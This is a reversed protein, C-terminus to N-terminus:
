GKRKSVGILLSTIAIIFSASAFLLYTNLMTNDGTKPSNDYEGNSNNNGNSKLTEQINELENIPDNKNTNDDPIRVVITDDKSSSSTANFEVINSNTNISGIASNTKIDCTFQSTARLQKLKFTNDVSATVKLVTKVPIGTIVAKQGPKLTIIGNKITVETFTDDTNYIACKGNYLTEVSTGGFVKSYKLEYKFEKNAFNTNIKKYEDDVSCSIMFTGIKPSNIYKATLVPVTNVNSNTLLFNTKSTTRGDSVVLSNNTKIDKEFDKLVNSTNYLETLKRNVNSLAKEQVLMIDDKDFENRFTVSETNKLKIECAKTLTKDVVDYVFEDNNAVKITESKFTDAVNQADITNEVNLKTPEPLNFNLKLNAVDMGREMYFFTLTHQKGTDSLINKLDTSFPNDLNRYRGTVAGLNPIINNGSNFSTLTRASFAVNSNKALSVTSKNEAFNISGTIEGHSGGIDLALEGDIFVWVDDDGSFEFIIDQGNIKGDKTMMFPIEIKLGHGYNLSETKSDTKTNYPFFGPNGHPDLVQQGNANLGLYNLQGNNNFTVTDKSSYFEYFTVGSKDVRRFPFSVKEKVSGLSLQSNDHKNSTLFAKDFYPVKASKGTNKNSQMLYSEGNSSYSLKSDVLGQTASAEGQPSNAAYWYNTSKNFDENNPSVLNAIDPHYGCRGQYMPYTAPSATSDGYKMLNFLKTNFKSFTNNSTDLADTIALPTSATGIQSDSYYDYFTAKAVFMDEGNYKVPSLSEKSCSNDKSNKIVDASSQKAANFQGLTIFMVIVAFSFISITLNKKTKM